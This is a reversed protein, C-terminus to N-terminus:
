FTRMFLRKPMKIIVTGNRRQIRVLEKPLWANQEQWEILLGSETEYAIKPIEITVFRGFALFRTLRSKM